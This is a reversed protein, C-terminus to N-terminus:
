WWKAYCRQGKHAILFNTIQQFESLTYENGQALTTLHGKIEAILTDTVQHLVKKRLLTNIKDLAGNAYDLEISSGLEIRPANSSGLEIRPAHIEELFDFREREGRIVRTRNGTIRISRAYQRARTKIRRNHAIQIYLHAAM